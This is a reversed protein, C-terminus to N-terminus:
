QHPISSGRFSLFYVLLYYVVRTSFLFSFLMWFFNERKEGWMEGREGRKDEHVSLHAAPWLTSSAMSKVRHAGQLFLAFRALSPPCHPFPHFFLRLPWISLLFTLHLHTRVLPSLALLFYVWLLLLNHGWWSYLIFFCCFICLWPGCTNGSIQLLLLPSPFFLRKQDWRPHPQCDCGQGHPYKPFRGLYTGQLIHIHLTHIFTHAHIHTHIHTSPYWLFLIFSISLLSLNYYPLKPPYYIYLYIYFHRM